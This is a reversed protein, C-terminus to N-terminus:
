TPRQVTVEGKAIAAANRGFALPDPDHLIRGRLEGRERGSGAGGGSTRGYFAAPMQKLWGDLQVPEGTKEDTVVDNGRMAKVANEIVTFGFTRARNVVDDIHEAVVGAKLAADTITKHFLTAQKERLLEAKEDEILQLRKTLPKTAAEIQKLIEMQALDPDTPKRKTAEDKLKVYEDPDIDKYRERLATLEKQANVASERFQKLSAAEVLGELVFAGDRETYHEKLPDPLTAHEDKTVKSKLAM